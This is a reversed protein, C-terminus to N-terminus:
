ATCTTAKADAESAVNPAGCTECNAVGAYKKTNTLTIEATDDCAMISQDTKTAGPLIFYGSAVTTCVGDVAKTCPKQGTADSTSYCGGKYLFYPGDRQGCAKDTTVSGGSNKRCGATDVTPDDKIQM